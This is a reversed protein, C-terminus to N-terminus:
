LVSSESTFKVARNELHPPSLYEVPGLNQIRNSFRLIRWDLVLLEIISVMVWIVPIVLWLSEPFRGWLVPVFALDNAVSMEELVKNHFVKSM